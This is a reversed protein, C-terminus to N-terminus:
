SPRPHSDDPTGCRCPHSSNPPFSLASIPHTTRPDITRRPRPSVLVVRRKEVERSLWRSDRPKIWPLRGSGLQRPEIAFAPRGLVQVVLDLGDTREDLVDTQKQSDRVTALDEFDRPQPVCGSRASEVAFGVIAGGLDGLRTVPQDDVSSTSCRAPRRPCAHRLGRFRAPSGPAASM